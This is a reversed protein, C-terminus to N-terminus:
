QPDQSQPPTKPKRWETMMYNEFKNRDMDALRRHNSMTYNPDPNALWHHFAVMRRAMKKNMKIGYDSEWEEPTLIALEMLSLQEDTMTELAQSAPGALDMLLIEEFFTKYALIGILGEVVELLKSDDEIGNEEM